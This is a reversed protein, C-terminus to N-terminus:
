LQTRSILPVIVASTRSSNKITRAKSVSTSSCSSMSSVCM